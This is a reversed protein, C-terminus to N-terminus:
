LATHRGSRAELFYGGGKAKIGDFLHCFSKAKKLIILLFVKIDFHFSYNFFNYLLTLYYM